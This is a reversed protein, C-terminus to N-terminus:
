GGTKKQTPFWIIYGNAGLTGSGQKFGTWSTELEKCVMVLYVM